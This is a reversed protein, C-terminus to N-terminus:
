EKESVRGEPYSSFIREFYRQTRELAEKVEPNLLEKPLKEYRWYYMVGLLYELHPYLQYPHIQTTKQEKQLHKIYSSKGLDQPLLDDYIKGLYYGAGAFVKQMWNNVRADEFANLLLRLYEKSFFLKFVREKINVRSIQRHAAEHLSFGVIEDPSFRLLLDAPFIVKNEEFDYRWWDGPEIRMGVDEGLGTSIIKILREFEEERIGKRRFLEKLERKQKEEDEIDGRKRIIEKEEVRRGEGGDFNKKLLGSEKKSIRQGSNVTAIKPRISTLDPAAFSFREPLPATTKYGKILKLLQNLKSKITEQHLPQLKGELVELVYGTKDESLRVKIKVYQDNVIKQFEEPVSLPYYFVGGDKDSTSNEMIICFSNIPREKGPWNDPGPAPYNIVYAKGNEVVSLSVSSGDDLNLAWNINNEGLKDYIIQIAEDFRVGKSETRGDFTFVFFRGDETMGMIIRPGRDWTLQTEQTQTSTEKLWGEVEFHERWVDENEVLNKGNYVLLNGGGMLWELDSWKNIGKEKLEEPVDMEFKYNLNGRIKYFSGQKEFYKKLKKDFYEKKVSFINGICSILVDGEKAFVIENDVVLINVRNEGVALSTHIRRNEYKGEINDSCMPTFILIDESELKENLDEVEVLPKDIINEEKWKFIEKGNVCFSGSGLKLYGAILEGKNTFAVFGKNYLPLVLEKKDRKLYTDIYVNKFEDPLIEESRGQKERFENYERFLSRTFFYLLNFIFKVDHYKEAIKQPQILERKEKASYKGPSIEDAKGVELKLGAKKFDIVIGNVLVKEESKVESLIKKGTSQPSGSNLKYIDRFYEGKGKIVKNIKKSIIKLNKEEIM